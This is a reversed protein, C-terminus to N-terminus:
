YYIIRTLAHVDIVFPIQRIMSPGSCSRRIAVLTPIQRGPSAMMHNDPLRDWVTTCSRGRDSLVGLSVSGLGTKDLVRDPTDQSRKWLIGQLPTQVHLVICPRTGVRGGGLRRFAPYCKGTVGGLM